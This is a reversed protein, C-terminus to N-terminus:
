VAIMVAEESLLKKDRPGALTTLLAWYVSSVRLTSLIITHIDNASKILVQVM